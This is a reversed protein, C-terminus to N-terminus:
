RRIIVLPLGTLPSYGCVTGFSLRMTSNADPYFNRDAYMRRMAANFLREDQEIQESAESVSQNMEYYKVILDLSLSIAPDEILNYTTDRELFRKLGKPSTIQSTAYLSDVYTQVNGNYLTDIQLYMAPLYKKDVKSRYEKLMAAFVEKDISLNLNDYKELLKKMRTVVLKEEAEFDFNLIELALQVLEPGNIFSEGFYALPM